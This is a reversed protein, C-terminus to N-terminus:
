CVPTWTSGPCMIVIFPKAVALRSM